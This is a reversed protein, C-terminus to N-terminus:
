HSTTLLPCSSQGRRAQGNERTVSYEGSAVTEESM